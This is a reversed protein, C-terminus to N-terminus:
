KSLPSITAPVPELSCIKLGAQKGAVPAAAKGQWDLLTVMLMAMNEAPLPAVAEMVRDIPACNEAPFEKTVTGGVYNGALKKMADDPLTALLKSMDGSLRLAVPKAKAWAQLSGPRYRQALSAGSAKLFGGGGPAAACKDRIGTILDPLVFQVLSHAETRTVCTQAAQAQATAPMAFLALGAAIRHVSVTMRVGQM